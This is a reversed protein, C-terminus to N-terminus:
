AVRKTKATVIGGNDERFKLSLADQPESRIFRSTSLKRGVFLKFLRNFTNEPVSGPIHM